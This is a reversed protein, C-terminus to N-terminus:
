GHRTQEFTTTGSRRSFDEAGERASGRGGSYFNAAGRETGVGLEDVRQLYSRVVASTRTIVGAESGLIAIRNGLGSRVATAARGLGSRAAALGRSLGATARAGVRSLGAVKGLATLLRGGPIVGLLNLRM